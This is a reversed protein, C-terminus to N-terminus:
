KELKFEARLKNIKDTQTQSLNPQKSFEELRTAFLKKTAPTPNNRLEEATKELEIAGNEFRIKQIASFGIMVISIFFFLLLQKLPRNKVVCYILLFVLVVFLFVGLGLLVIEYNHLGEIFNM